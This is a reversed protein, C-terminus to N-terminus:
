REAKRIENELNRLDTNQQQLEKEKKLITGGLRQRDATTAAHYKVRMDDLSAETDAIMRKLEEVQRFLTRSKSSRFQSPDTIVRQDDIVFRAKAATGRKNGSIRRMMADRRRLAAERDGFGWTDAIRLVRAYSELQRPSINDASFDHRTDTPVFTYICVSDGGQRRDTVLWGLTDINSVAYLYENATSNFPLGLNQPAYWQNSDSDFTTMFIDRGGVSEIGSASFYLTVGDTDLFPYDKHTYNAGDIIKMRSTNRWEGGVMEQTMLASSTSDAVSAIRRDHLENEYVMGSATRSLTGCDAPLPIMALFERKPVVVSDIFMVKATSPLLEHWLSLDPKAM